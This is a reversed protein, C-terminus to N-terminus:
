RKKTKEHEGADEKATDDDWEIGNDELLKRIASDGLRAAVKLDALEGERDGLWSRVLARSIYAETDEPQLAIVKNFDAMSKDYEEFYSYIIGRNYYAEVYESDLLIAKDFNELVKLLEGTSIYVYGRNLYAEAYEPDQEIAKNLDDLAGDFDENELKEMASTNLEEASPGCAGFGFCVFLLFFPLLKKYYTM